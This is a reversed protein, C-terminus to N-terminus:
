SQTRWSAFTAHVGDDGLGDGMVAGRELRQAGVLAVGGRLPGGGELAKGGEAKRRRALFGPLVGAQAAELRAAERCGLAAVRYGDYNRLREGPV